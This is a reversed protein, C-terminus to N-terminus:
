AAYKLQPTDKSPRIAAPRLMDRVVDSLGSDSNNCKLLIENASITGTAAAFQIFFLGADKGARIGLDLLQLNQIDTLRSGALCFGELVLNSKCPDAELLDRVRGLIQASDTYSFNSIAKTISNLIPASGNKAECIDVVSSLDKELSYNKAKKIYEQIFDLGATVSGAVHFFNNLNDLNLATQSELVKSLKLIATKFDSNKKDASVLQSFTNLSEETALVYPSLLKIYSKTLDDQQQESHVAM